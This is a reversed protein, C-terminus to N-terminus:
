KIGPVVVSSSEAKAAAKNPIAPVTANKSQMVINISKQNPDIKIINGDAADVAFGVWLTLINWLGVMQFQTNINTSQDYFGDKRVTIVNGSYIYSPLTIIAPTLGYPNGNFFVQAGEPQSDVKIARDNDGFMTACGGLSIASLILLLKKM